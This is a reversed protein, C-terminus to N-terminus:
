QAVRKARRERTRVQLVENEAKFPSLTVITNRLEEMENSVLLEDRLLKKTALPSAVPDAGDNSSIRDYLDFSRDANYPEEAPEKALEVPPAPPIPGQSGSYVREERGQAVHEHAMTTLADALSQSEAKTQAHAEKERTLEEELLDVEDQQMALTTTEAMTQAHAEKELALENKLLELEFTSPVPEQEALTLEEEEKAQLKFREFEEQLVRLQKEKEKQIKFSKMQIQIHKKVETKLATNQKALIPLSRDADTESTLLDVEDGDIGMSDVEALLASTYDDTTTVPSSSSARRLPPTATAAPPPNKEYREVKKALREIEKHATDLLSKLENVSLEENKVIVNKIQSAREGFRLTSITEHTHAQAVFV